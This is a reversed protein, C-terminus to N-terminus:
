AKGNAKGEEANGPAPGTAGRWGVAFGNSYRLDIYDIEQARQAVLRLAVDTFRALREELQKRGLRVTVGNDLTLTWAGRADQQLSALHMGAKTVRGQLALFRAVVDAETGAPGALRPLDPMAAGADSRFVQGQANVLGAGNWVGVAQQEEVHVVLGHPWRREVSVTGAWPLMRVARAVDDLRVGVLGSGHLPARAAQQVGLVTLHAFRGQVEITEIPQNLFALLGAVVAAIGGVVGAGLAVRRWPLRPLALSEPLLRRSGGDGRRRPNRRRNLV